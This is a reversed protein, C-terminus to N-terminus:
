HNKMSPIRFVRGISVRQHEARLFEELEHVKDPNRQSPILTRQVHNLSLVFQTRMPCAMVHEPFEMAVRKLTELTWDTVTADKIDGGGRWSVAITTEGDINSSTDQKDIAAEGSVQAVSVNM